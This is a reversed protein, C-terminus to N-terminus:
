WSYLYGYDKQLQLRVNPDPDRSVKQNGFYVGYPDPGSHYALPHYPVGGEVRAQHHQYRMERASAPVAIMTVMAAAVLLQRTNLM